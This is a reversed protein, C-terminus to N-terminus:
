AGIADHFTLLFHLFTKGAFAPIWFAMSEGSM